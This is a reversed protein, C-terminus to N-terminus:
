LLPVARSRSESVAPPKLHRTAFLAALTPFAILLLFAAAMYRPSIWEPIREYWYNQSTGDWLTAALAILALSLSMQWVIGAWVAWNRGLWVGICVLLLVSAAFVATLILRGFDLEASDICSPVGSIRYAGPGTYDCGHFAAPFSILETAILGVLQAGLLIAAIRAARTNAAAPAAIMMAMLTLAPGVAVCLTLITFLLDSYWSAVGSWMSGESLSWGVDQSVNRAVWLLLVLQTLFGLAIGIRKRLLVPVANLVLLSALAIWLWPVPRWVCGDMSRPYCGPPPKLDPLNAQLIYAAEVALIAAVALYRGRRM